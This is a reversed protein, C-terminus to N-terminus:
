SAEKPNVAGGAKSSQQDPLKTAEPEAGDQGSESLLRSQYDNIAAQLRQAALEGAELVMGMSYLFGADTTTAIKDFLINQVGKLMLYAEAEALHSFRGCSEMLEQLFLEREAITASPNAKMFNKAQKLRRGEDAMSTEALQEFWYMLNDWRNFDRAPASSYDHLEGAQERDDPPKQEM